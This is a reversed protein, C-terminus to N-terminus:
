LYYRVSSDVSYQNINHVSCTFQVFYMLEVSPSDIVELYVHVKKTKVSKSNVVKCTYPCEM